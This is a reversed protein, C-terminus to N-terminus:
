PYQFPKIKIFQRSKQLGEEDNNDTARTYMKLIRGYKQGKEQDFNAVGLKAM